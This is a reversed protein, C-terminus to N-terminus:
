ENSAGKKDSRGKIKTVVKGSFIVKEGGNIIEYADARVSGMPGTGSVPKDGVIHDTDIYFKAHETVYEYGNPTTFHVSDFLTLTKKNARYVGGKATVQSSDAGPATDLRPNVLDTTDPEDRRRTATDAIVVYPRGASDRGTFRPNIMRVEGDVNEPPPPAPAEKRLANILIYLAVVAIIVASLVLFSLRLIRIVTRRKRAAELTMRRRPEWNLERQRQATGSEANMDRDAKTITQGMKQIM